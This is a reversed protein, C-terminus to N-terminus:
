KLKSHKGLPHFTFVNLRDCPRIKHNGYDRSYIKKIRRIAEKHSIAKLIRRCEKPDTLEHWETLLYEEKKECRIIKAQTRLDKM